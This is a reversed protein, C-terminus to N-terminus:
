LGWTGPAQIAGCDGGGLYTRISATPSPTKSERAVWRGWFGSIGCSAQITRRYHKVPSPSVPIVQSHSPISCLKWKLKRWEKIWSCFPGHWPLPVPVRQGSLQSLLPGPAWVLLSTDHVHCHLLQTRCLTKSSNLTASM